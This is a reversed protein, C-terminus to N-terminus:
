RISVVNLERYGDHMLSTGTVTVRGGVFGQVHALNGKLPYVDGGRAPVYRSGKSVCSRTCTGDQNPRKSDLHITELVFRV